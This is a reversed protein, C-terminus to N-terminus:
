TSPLSPRPSSVPQPLSGQRPPNHTFENCFPRLDITTPAKVRTTLKHNLTGDLRFRCRPGSAATLALEPLSYCYSSAPRPLWDPTPPHSM